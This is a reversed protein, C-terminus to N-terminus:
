ISRKGERGKTYKRRQLLEEGAKNLCMGPAVERWGEGTIKVSGKTIWPSFPFRQWLLYVAGGLRRRPFAWAFSNSPLLAASHQQPPFTFDQHEPFPVCERRVGQSSKLIQEIWTQRLSELFSGETATEPVALLILCGTQSIIHLSM